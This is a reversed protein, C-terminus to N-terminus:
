MKGKWKTKAFAPVSNLSASLRPLNIPAAATTAKPHILMGFDSAVIADIDTFTLTDGTFFPKDMLADELTVLGNAM